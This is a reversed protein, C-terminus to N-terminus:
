SKMIYALAYYPPLNADTGSSGTNGTTGPGSSDITVTHSHSGSSDTNYTGMGRDNASYRAYGVGSNGNSAGIGHTHEGATNTSGTHTHAPTSHTHSVAIADKSGGTTGVSYGSGAGIVFRDQLNPTGNAGNCLYWGAPISAVAGSWIIIGGSPVGNHMVFATTAIKTSNDGNTPTTSLPTGTFTPSALPAKTAISTAITTEFNADNGLATALENLTDLTSPASNVISAVITDVQGKNIVQNDATATPVIPNSSFTKTGAITQSAQNVDALQRAKSM